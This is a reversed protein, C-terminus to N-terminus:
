MVRLLGRWHLRGTPAGSDAEAAFFLSQGIEDIRRRSRLDFRQFAAGGGLENADVQDVRGYFMWNQYPNTRPRFDDEDETENGVRIGFRYATSLTNARVWGVQRLITIGKANEGAATQWDSLLDVFVGAGAAIAYSFETTAWQLNQRPRRTILGSRRRVLRRPQM